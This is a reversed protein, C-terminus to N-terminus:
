RTVRGFLIKAPLLGWELSEEGYWGYAIARGEDDLAFLVTGFGFGGEGEPSRTDGQHPLSTADAIRAVYFNPQGPIATPSSVFFGVHGTIKSRSLPSRLWAFVDGPRAESIHRLRQWGRPSRSVPAAKIAYYFHKALPRDRGMSSFAESASRRLIWAAMGSCDWAYFGEKPKIVLWGQYRTQRVTDRLHALASIIRGAAINAAAKPTLAIEPPASVETPAKPQSAQVIPAGFLIIFLCVNIRLLVLTMKENPSM